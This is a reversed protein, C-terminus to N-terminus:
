PQAGTTAAADLIAPWAARFADVDDDGLVL